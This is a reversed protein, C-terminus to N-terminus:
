RCINYIDIKNEKRVNSKGDKDVCQKRLDLKKGNEIPSELIKCYEASDSCILGGCDILGKDDIKVTIGLDTDTFLSEITQKADINYFGTIFLQITSVVVITSCINIIQM